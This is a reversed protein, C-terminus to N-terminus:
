PKHALYAHLNGASLIKETAITLGQASILGPLGNHSFFERYHNFHERGAALEMSVILTKYLWGKPFRIPGSRFDILLLRGHPNVVRTMEAMAATRTAPPMEHLTLFTTVLDFSNDTFPIHTADAQRLDARDGLKQRAQDLMAPSLDIGSVECGANHYLGLSTGTGCGVDLVKMGERPPYMDLGIKRVVVNPPDVLTDYFKAIRRYPDNM